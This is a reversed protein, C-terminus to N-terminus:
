FSVTGRWLGLQFAASTLAAAPLAIFSVWAPGRRLAWAVPFVLPFAALLFRMSHQHYPTQVLVGLLLFGSYWNLIWPLRLWIGAVFLVCAAVITWAAVQHVLEGGLLNAWVYQSKDVGWDNVSTWAGQIDFWGGPTGTRSTVFALHAALGLPAVVTVLVARAWRRTRWGQRWAAATVPLIAAIAQFRTLGAALCALSAWGYRGRMALLLAGASLAVFLSEPRGMSLVINVPWSGWLVVVILAFRPGAVHRAILAILAAAAFSAVGSVLIAGHIPNLGVMSTLRILWVFLPFFALNPYRDAAGEVCGAEGQRECLVRLDSGLDAGTDYGYAAIDQYWHGDWSYALLHLRGPLPGLAVWAGALAVLRTLLFALIAKALFGWV